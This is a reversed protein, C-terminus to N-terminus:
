SYIKEFCCTEVVGFAYAVKSMLYVDLMTPRPDNVGGVILLAFYDCISRAVESTCYESKLFEKVKAVESPEKNQLTEMLCSCLQTNGNKLQKALEKQNNHLLQIFKKM